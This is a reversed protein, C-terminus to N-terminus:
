EEPEGETVWAPGDPGYKWTPRGDSDIVVNSPPSSSPGGESSWDKEISWETGGTGDPTFTIWFEHATGACELVWKETWPGLVRKGDASFDPPAAIVVGQLTYEADPGCGSMTGAALGLAYLIDNQLLADALTGPVIGERGRGILKARLRNLM